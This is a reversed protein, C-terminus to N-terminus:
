SLLASIAHKKEDALPSLELVLRGLHKYHELADGSLSAIHKKITNIDGRKFPGTLAEKIGPSAQANNLASQMLNMPMAKAIDSPAGADIFCQRSQELLATAANASFFCAAHYLAKKTSDILFTHSGIAEFIPTLVAVADADGEISCYSGAYTDLSLAPNSFGHIPHVSAALAGQAKASKLLRADCSGSTHFVITGPKITRSLMQCTPEIADDNVSIMVIDACPLSPIDCCASGAGIFVCAKQASSMSRNCVAQLTIDNHTILLKVITKGLAGAGIISLSKNM